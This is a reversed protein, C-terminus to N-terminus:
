NLIEFWLDGTKINDPQTKSVIVETGGGLGIERWETWVDKVSCRHLISNDAFKFIVQFAATSAGGVLLMSNECNEPVNINEAGIFYNGSEKVLNLDTKTLFGSKKQYTENIKNGDSDKYSKEVTDDSNPAYSTKLMDGGGAKAIAESVAKESPIKQPNTGITQSINEVSVAGVDESTISVMGTKGNVSTVPYPPPNQLSYQRENTVNGLGMDTKTEDLTRSYIWGNEIVAIKQPAKNLATNATTRLWTGTVYGNTQIEASGITLTGNMTDGTKSVAGIDSSNLVVAGTKSNVSTVPSKKEIYKAIGGNEKVSNDSDYDIKNMDRSSSQLLAESVAKESPIRDESSGLNQSIKELSIAGIDQAKTPVTIDIESNQASNATFEGVLVGNQMISLQGNNVIPIEPKNNLDEYSGSFSSTGAGINERVQLKEKDTLTQKITKVANTKIDGTEGDVSKVPYPPPNKISYQRENAVNDLGLQQATVNHPNNHNNIHALLESGGSSSGGDGQDNNGKAKIQALEKEVFDKLISTGKSDMGHKAIVWCNNFSGKKLMIEISDGERLEFPTQNQIRTFETEPERPLIVDVTGDSNVNTVTASEIRPSTRKIEATVCQLIRNLMEDAYQDYNNNQKIM